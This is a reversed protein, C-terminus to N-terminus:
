NSTSRDLASLLDFYPSLADAMTEKLPEMARRTAEEDGGGIGYEDNVLRERLDRLEDYHEAFVITVLVKVVKKLAVNQAELKHLRSRTEDDM